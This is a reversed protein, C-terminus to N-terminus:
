GGGVLGLQLVVLRSTGYATYESPYLNPQYDCLLGLATLRIDPTRTLGLALFGGQYSGGVTHRYVAGPNWNNIINFIPATVSLHYTSTISTSLARTSTQYSSPYIGYYSCNGVAQSTLHVVGPNGTQSSGPVYSQTDLGQLFTQLGSTGVQAMGYIGWNNQSDSFKGTNSVYYFPWGVISAWTWNYQNVKKGLEYFYEAYADHYYTDAYSSPIPVAEGCTNIIVAEAEELRSVIPFDNAKLLGLIHESDVLNKACGLNILFVKRKSDM